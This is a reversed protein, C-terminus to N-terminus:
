RLSELKLFTSIRGPLFVKLIIDLDKSLRLIHLAERALVSKKEPSEKQNYFGYRLLRSITILYHQRTHQDQHITYFEKFIPYNALEKQYQNKLSWVGNEHMTYVGM